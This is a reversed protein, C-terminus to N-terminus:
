AELAGIPTGVPDADASEQGTLRQAHCAPRLPLRYALGSPRVGGGLFALRPGSVVFAASCEGRLRPVCFTRLLVLRSWRRWVHGGCFALESVSVGVAVLSGFASISTRATSRRTLRFRSRGPILLRPSGNTWREDGPIEALGGTRTIVEGIAFRTSENANQWVQQPM